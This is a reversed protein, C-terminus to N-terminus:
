YSPSELIVMVDEQYPKVVVTKPSYGPIELRLEASKEDKVKVFCPTRLSLPVGAQTVTAGSPKSRISVTIPEKPYRKPEHSAPARDEMPNLGLMEKGSDFTETWLDSVQRNAMKAWVFSVVVLSGALKWSISFAKRIEYNRWLGRSNKKRDTMALRATRFREVAEKSNAQSPKQVVEAIMGMSDVLDAYQEFKKEYKSPDIDAGMKSIYYALKRETESMEKHFISRFMQRFENPSFHPYNYNLYSNLADHFEGSTQYRQNVDGACAKAVIQDLEHNIKSNHTILESHEPNSLWRVVGADTLDQYFRRGSLMEWLVVGLSFIDSRHDVREGRAHEPSIYKLKGMIQDSQTKDGFDSTRALGFDIIKIEGEFNVMINQPSIDRHVINLSKGTRPDKCTRAYELGAAVSRAIYLAHEIPIMQKRTICYHMFRNLALGNVFNMAVYFDEGEQGCEYVSVISNHKLVNALSAEKRLMKLARPNASQETNLIKVAFFQVVENQMKSFALYVEGSGGSGLKELLTYKGMKKLGLDAM